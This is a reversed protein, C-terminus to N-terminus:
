LRYFKMSGDKHTVIYCLGSGDEMEIKEVEVLWKIEILQKALKLLSKQM